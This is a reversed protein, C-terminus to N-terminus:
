VSIRHFDAETKLEGAADKWSRNTAISFNCVAGKEFEKYQADQCAYGIIQHKNLSKM